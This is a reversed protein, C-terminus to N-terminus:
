MFFYVSEATGRLLQRRDSDSLFGLQDRVLAISSGYSSPATLQYPSDSAWMLREPGYTDLLRRIMPVLETHPPRKNGLAYYASIKVRVQSHKSLACLSQVQSDEIPGAMGVRAFHDIVVPTEPYRACWSGVSELEEPNILCCLNQRTVAATKWMQEMGSGALWERRDERQGIRFGTVGTKLLEKMRMDVGPQTEDIMAVVRFTDPRERWADILLSNDFGHYPYHQILVVRGVGHPRATALLEDATFSAPKLVELGQNARLPYRRLDTSWIHSHADIWPTQEDVAAGLALSGAALAGASMLM